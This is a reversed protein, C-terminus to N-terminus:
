KKAISLHYRILPHLQSWGRWLTIWGPPHKAPNKQYGGLRALEVWFEKVTWARPRGKQLRSLVEVWVAPVFDTAPRSALEPQRVALRLNMMGVAIVSVLAVWAAMKEVSQFQAKEVGAGSKQVKHLEEVQMRDAYWEAVQRIEAPTAAPENTLLIWELATEGAPPNAEWVRVVTLALPEAEPEYNGKRVHPPRITVAQSVASLRVTRASKGARAPLLHDWHTTAALLRVQDHLLALAKEESSGSGLARNHKSRVVFHRRREVLEQLFEFIDAGRDAIDIWHCNEPTPGMEDLGRTWLRSERSARERKQAVTEGPPPSVRVHLIQSVLGYVLRNSPDVALTHHAMWGRGGGNGIPGLDDELTTHGSFDLLTTDHLLLIPTSIKEMANLAAEQHTGLINDHTCRKADFLRLCAHYASPDPFIQPLSAGPNAAIAQAVNQFRRDLRRDGLELGPCLSETLHALQIPDFM